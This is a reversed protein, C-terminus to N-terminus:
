SFRVLPLPFSMRRCTYLPTDKSWLSYLDFPTLGRCGISNERILDYFYARELVMNGKKGGSYANHFLEKGEGPLIIDKKINFLLNLGLIPSTKLM